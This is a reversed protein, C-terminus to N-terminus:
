LQRKSTHIWAPNEGDVKHALMQHYEPNIGEYFCDHKMDELHKPQIRGPYELQLILVQQLLHVRFEAVNEKLWQKLSCFERSLTDLMMAIGYHEELM